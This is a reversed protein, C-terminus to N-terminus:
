LRQSSHCYQLQVKTKILTAKLNSRQRVVTHCLDEVVCPNLNIADIKKELFRIILQGRKINCKERWKQLLFCFISSSSIIIICPLCLVMRSLLLIIMLAILQKTFRQLFMIRMENQLNADCFIGFPSFLAECSHWFYLDMIVMTTTM